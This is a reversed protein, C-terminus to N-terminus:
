EECEKGRKAEKLLKALWAVTDQLERIQTQQHAHVTDITSIGQGPVPNSNNIISVRKLNALPTTCAGEEASFLVLAVKSGTRAEIITGVQGVNLGALVLVTDGVFLEQSPAHTTRDDAILISPKVWFLRGVDTEVTYKYGDDKGDYAYVITAKVLVKDGINFKNMLKEEENIARLYEEAVRVTISDSGDWSITYVNDNYHLVTGRGAVYPYKFLLADEWYKRTTAVRDGIKFKNM